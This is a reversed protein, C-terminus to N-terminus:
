KEIETVIRGYETRLWNKIATAMFANEEFVIRFEGTVINYIPTTVDRGPQFDRVPGNVYFSIIRAKPNSNIFAEITDGGTIGTLYFVPYKSLSHPNEERRVHVTRIADAPLHEPPNRLIRQRREQKANVSRCIEDVDIKIKTVTSREPEAKRFFKRLFDWMVAGM